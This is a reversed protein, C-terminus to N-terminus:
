AIFELASLLAIFVMTGAAHFRLVLEEHRIFMWWGSSNFAFRDFNVM